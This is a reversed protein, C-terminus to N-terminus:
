QWKGMNKAIEREREKRNRNRRRGKKLCEKYGGGRGAGYM